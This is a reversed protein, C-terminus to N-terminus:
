ILGMVYIATVPLFRVDMSLRFNVTCPTIGNMSPYLFDPSIEVFCESIIVLRILVSVTSYNRKRGTVIIYTIRGYSYLKYLLAKIKM